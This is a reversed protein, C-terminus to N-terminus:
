SRLLEVTQTYNKANALDIPLNGDNDRLNRDAGNSLLLKVVEESEQWWPSAAIHLATMGRSSQANIDAGNQLLSGIGALAGERAAIMLPTFGHDLPENPPSALKHLKSSCSGTPANVDAGRALLEDIVHKWGYTSALHLAREGLMCPAELEAGGKILVRVMEHAQDFYGHTAAMHLPRWEGEGRAEIEWVFFGIREFLRNPDDGLELLTRAVDVQGCLLAWGMPPLRDVVTSFDTTEALRVVDEVRGLACASHIDCDVGDALM